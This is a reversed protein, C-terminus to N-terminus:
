GQASAFELDSTWEKADLDSALMVRPRSWRAAVALAPEASEVLRGPKIEACSPEMECPSLTGREARAGPLGQVGVVFRCGRRCVSLGSM